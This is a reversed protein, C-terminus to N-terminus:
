QWALPGGKTKASPLRPNQHGREMKTGKTDAVESEKPKERVKSWEEKMEPHHRKMLRKGTAIEDVDMVEIAVQRGADGGFAEKTLLERGLEM